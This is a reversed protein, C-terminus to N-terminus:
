ELKAHFKVLGDIVKLGRKHKPYKQSFINLSVDVNISTKGKLHSYEEVDTQYLWHNAYRLCLYIYIMNNYQRLVQKTGLLLFM